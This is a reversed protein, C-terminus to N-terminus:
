NDDETKEEPLQEFLITPLQAVEKTEVKQIAKGETRDAIYNRAKDDGQIAQMMAKYSILEQNTVEDKGLTEKLMEIITTDNDSFAIAPMTSMKELTEKIQKYERKAQGSKIGGKKGNKKAQERSQKSTFPKLNQINPM